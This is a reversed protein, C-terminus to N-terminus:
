GSSRRRASSDTRTPRAAADARHPPRGIGGRRRRSARTNRSRAASRPRPTTASRGAGRGRGQGGGDTLMGAACQIRWRALYHMPPQGVFHAFREALASRSSAVERALMELTWARAPDAHLRELARGVLPDRLGALWGGADDGLTTLHRRVVEVFMLEGIRLLVSRSGARKDRSEAVAFEVLAGLRDSGAARPQRVRLLRPLAGIMPNFPLADCGLFGCVVKLSKAGEGGEDVVFPLQGGAMQRFWGLVEATTLGSNIIGPASSLAYADGHPVVLVDGAELRVPPTGALHCWCSGEVIVHYSVVHQARPLIAPALASSEPAEAIWPPSAHVIFFLAGTLRVVQLVDSLADDGSRGAPAEAAMAVIGSAQDHNGSM